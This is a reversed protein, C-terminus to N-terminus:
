QRAASLPCDGCLGGGPVRYYLCCSRRIARGQDDATMTGNMAPHRMAAQVFVGPRWQPVEAAVLRATALASSAVNGWLLGRSTNTAAAIASCLGDFAHAALRVAHAADAHQDAGTPDAHRGVPPRDPDYALALADVDSTVLLSSPDFIIGHSVWTGLVASWIRACVGLHWTSVGVRTEETKVQEAVYDAREVIVYQPLSAISWSHVLSTTTLTFYPGLEAVGRLAHAVEAGTAISGPTPRRAHHPTRELHTGVSNLTAVADPRRTSAHRGTSPPAEGPMAPSASAGITTPGIEPHTMAQERTLAPDSKLTTM